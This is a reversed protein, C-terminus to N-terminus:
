FLICVSAESSLRTNGQVNVRSAAKGWAVSHVCDAMFLVLSLGVLLKAECYHMHSCISPLPYVMASYSHSPASLDCGLM